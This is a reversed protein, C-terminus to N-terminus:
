NLRIIGSFFSANSPSGLTTSLPSTVPFGLGRFGLGRFGVGWARPPSTFNLPKQPNGALQMSHAESSTGLARSALANPWTWLVPKLQM